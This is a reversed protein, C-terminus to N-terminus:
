EAGVYLNKVAGKLAIEIQQALNHLADAITPGVAAYEAGGEAIGLFRSASGYEATWVGDSYSLLLERDNIVPVALIEAVIGNIDM